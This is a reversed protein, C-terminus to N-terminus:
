ELPPPSIAVRQVKGQNSVGSTATVASKKNQGMEQFRRMTPGLQQPDRVCNGIITRFDEGNVGIGGFYRYNEPTPPGGPAGSPPIIAPLQFAYM